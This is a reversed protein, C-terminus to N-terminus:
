ADPSEPVVLTVASGVLGATSVTPACTSKVKIQGSELETVKADTVRGSLNLVEAAANPRHVDLGVTDGLWYDIGFVPPTGDGLETDVQEPGAEFDFYPIPTALSAAIAEAHAQLTAVEVVDEFTVRKEFPGYLAISAPNEVVYAPYTAFPNGESAITRAAGIAVVRNVIEDGGPAHEFSKATFPGYGYVFRVKGSLDSGQKPYFTNFRCLTGDGRVIPELEFDPGNIVQTMQEIALAVEKTPPYTRDRAISAPALTGKVIGHGIAREILTWMIISQDIGKFGLQEWNAGNVVRILARELQFMPDIANLELVESEEAGKSDPIVVRGIFLPKSFNNPGKLTVRLVTAVAKALMLAPDELSLPVM